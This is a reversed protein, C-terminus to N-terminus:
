ENKLCKECTYEGDKFAQLLEKKIENKLGGVYPMGVSLRRVNNGVEHDLDLIKECRLCKYETTKPKSSTPKSKPPSVSSDDNWGNWVKCKEPCSWSGCEKCATM